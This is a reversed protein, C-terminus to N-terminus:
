RKLIADLRQRFGDITGLETVHLRERDLHQSLGSFLSLNALEKFRGISEKPLAQLSCILEEIKREIEQEDVVFNVLGLELAEQMEINRSLLYFENFKKMGVLRSLFLSGGGDPTLGIRRYAMNMIARREAVALDCALSLSFGAGFALGEVVAVVVADVKRIM